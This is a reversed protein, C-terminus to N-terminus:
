KFYYNLYENKKKFSYTRIKAKRLVEKINIRITGGIKYAKIKGSYIQKYLTHPSLSLVKAAEKLTLMRNPQQEELKEVIGELRNILKELRDKLISLEWFCGWLAKPIGPYEYFKREKANEKVEELIKRIKELELDSNEM